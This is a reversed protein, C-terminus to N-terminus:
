TIVKSIRFIIYLAIFLSSFYIFKHKNLELRQKPISHFHFPREPPLITPAIFEAFKTSFSKVNTNEYDYNLIRM